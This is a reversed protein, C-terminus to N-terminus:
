PAGSWVQFAAWDLPHDPRADLQARQLAESPASGSALAAYFHDMVAATAADDVEWLSALVVQAGACLFAGALALTMDGYDPRAGTECASLTVLRTGRLNLRHAQLLLFAGDALELTSFLPAESNTSGHAAIHLIQPPPLARLDAATARASVCARPLHRRIAAIEDEVHALRRAGTGPFALVRPPGPTEDVPVAPAAWLGASPTLTLTVMDALYSAGDFLAAWPVQYLMGWPAILVHRADRLAASLPALLAEWLRRLISQMREHADPAPSRRLHWRLVNWRDLLPSRARYSGLRQCTV